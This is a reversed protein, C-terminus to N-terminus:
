IHFSEVTFWILDFTMDAASTPQMNCWLRFLLSFLCMSLWTCSETACGEELHCIGACVTCLSCTLGWEEEMVTWYQMPLPSSACLNVYEWLCPWKLLCLGADASMQKTDSQRWHAIVGDGAMLPKDLLLSVSHLAVMFIEASLCFLLLHIHSHPVGWYVLLAIPFKLLLFTLCTPRQIHLLSSDSSHLCICTCYKVLAPFYDTHLLASNLHTTEVILKNKHM